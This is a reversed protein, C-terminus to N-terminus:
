ADCFSANKWVCHIFIKVRAMLRFKNPCVKSALIESITNFGPLPYPHSVKAFSSNREKTELNWEGESKQSQEWAKKHEL